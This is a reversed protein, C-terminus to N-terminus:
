LAAETPGVEELSALLATLMYGLAVRPMQQAASFLEPLLSITSDELSPAYNGDVQLQQHGVLLTPLNSNREGCTRLFYEVKELEESRDIDPNFRVEHLSSNKQMSRVFGDVDQPVQGIWLQRLYLLDPVLRLMAENSLRLARDDEADGTENEVTPMKICHLIRSQNEKTAELESWLGDLSAFTDVYLTRVGGGFPSSL